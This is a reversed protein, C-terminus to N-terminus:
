AELPHGLRDPGLAQYPGRMRPRRCTSLTEVALPRESRMNSLLAQGLEGVDPRKELAPVVAGRTGGTSM